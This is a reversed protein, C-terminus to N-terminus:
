NYNRVEIDESQNPSKTLNEGDKEAREFSPKPRASWRSWLNVSKPDGKKKRLSKSFVFTTPDPNEM